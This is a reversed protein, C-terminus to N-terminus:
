SERVSQRTGPDPCPMTTPPDIRVRGRQFLLLTAALVICTPGEALIWWAPLGAAWDIVIMVVGQILMAVSVFTILGAHRRVDLSAYWLLVGFSAFWLSTSRALYVAIPAAPFPGLGIQRHCWALWDTPAVVAALAAFNVIGLGRLLGILGSSRDAVRPEQCNLDSM